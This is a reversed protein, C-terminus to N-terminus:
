NYYVQDYMEQNPDMPLRAQYRLELVIWLFALGLAYVGLLPRLPGFDVVQALAFVIQGAGIAIYIKFLWGLGRPEYAPRLWVNVAILVVGWLLWAWADHFFCSLFIWGWRMPLEARLRSELMYNRASPPAPPPSAAVFRRTEDDLYEFVGLEEIDLDDLTRYPRRPM